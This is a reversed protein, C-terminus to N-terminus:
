LITLVSEPPRGIKAKEGKVVIPRELLASNESIAKLLDDNTLAPNDLGLSQYLEDKTRMMKRVDDLGLKNALQQLAEVTFYGNMFNFNYQSNGNDYILLQKTGFTTEYIKKVDHNFCEKISNINEFWNGDKTEVAFKVDIM